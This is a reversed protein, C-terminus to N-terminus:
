IIVGAKLKAVIANQEEKSCKLTDCRVSEIETYGRLSSLLSTINSPYGVFKKYGSALSQMPREIIFYPKKVGMLGGTATAGGSRNISPKSAMVSMASEPAQTLAIGGSLASIGTKAIANYLGMFDRSVLPLTTSLNGEFSYLISNIRGSYDDRQAIVFAVCSGSLLDAYYVVRISANMVEDTKLRVTNIFPLHLSIQTYQGYDLASGYVKRINVSGCDLIAYQNNIRQMDINTDVGGIKVPQLNGLEYPPVPSISLSVILDLPQAFMKTLNDLLSNSWLWRSLQNLQGITPNYMTLMGSNAAGLTPLAPLGIDTSTLMFTGDGGGTGSNSQDEPMDEIEIYEGKVNLIPMSTISYYEDWTNLEGQMAGVYETETIVPLDVSIETMTGKKLPTDYMILHTDSNLTGFFLYYDRISRHTTTQTPDGGWSEEHLTFAGCPNFEQFSAIRVGTPNDDTIEGNFDGSFAALRIKNQQVMIPNIPTGSPISPDTVIIAGFIETGNIKAIKFYKDFLNTLYSPSYDAAYYVYGHDEYWKLKKAYWVNKPVVNFYLRGSTVDGLDLNGQDSEIYKSYGFTYSAM